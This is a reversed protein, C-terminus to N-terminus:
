KAACQLRRERQTLAKAFRDFSGQVLCGGLEVGQKVAHLRVGAVAAWSVELKGALSCDGNHVQPAFCAGIVVRHVEHGGATSVVQGRVEFM